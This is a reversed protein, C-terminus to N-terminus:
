SNKQSGPRLIGELCIKVAQHGFSDQEDEFPAKALFKKAMQEAVFYYNVMGVLIAATYTPNLDDRFQGKAMGEEISQILFNSFKSLYKKVFSDLFPSPHNLESTLLRRIYPNTRHLRTFNILFQSIREVPEQKFWDPELFLTQFKQFQEDIVAEYLGDKSKFYYNILASNVGAAESIEKFSVAAFGKAAFLPLAAEILRTRADKETM